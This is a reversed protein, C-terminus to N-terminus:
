EQHALYLDGPLRTASQQGLGPVKALLIHLQADLPDLRPPALRQGVRLERRRGVSGKGLKEPKWVWSM